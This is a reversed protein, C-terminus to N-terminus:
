LRPDGGCGLLAGHLLDCALILEVPGWTRVNVGRYGRRPHALKPQLKQPRRVPKSHMGLEELLQLAATFREVLTNARGRAAGRSGRTALGRCDVPSAPRG